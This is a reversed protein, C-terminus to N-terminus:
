VSLLGNVLNRWQVDSFGLIATLGVVTNRVKDVPNSTANNVEENRGHVAASVEIGRREIVFSSTSRDSFFHAINDGTDKPNAAPRVTITINEQTGHPDILEQISEIRVWDYGQGEASGPGPLDIKFYDGKEATRQVDNGTQDTLTFTASPKGALIHWHNVDMLRNRAMDFLKRADDLDPTNVRHDIDKKSGAKQPPIWHDVDNEPGM